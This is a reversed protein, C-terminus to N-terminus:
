FDYCRDRTVRNTLPSAENALWAYRCFHWRLCFCVASHFQFLFIPVKSVL